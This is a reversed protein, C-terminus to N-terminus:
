GAELPGVALTATTDGCVPLQQQVVIGPGAGDSTIFARLMASTTEPCGYAGPQTGHLRAVATGGKAALVVPQSASGEASAPWGLRGGDANEAILGPWGDFSCDTASNNTFVLDGYFSGAGSDEPRAQYGLSLQEDQCHAAAGASDPAESPPASVGGAAGGPSGPKPSSSPIPRAAPTLSASPM